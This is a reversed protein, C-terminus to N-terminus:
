AASDRLLHTAHGLREVAVDRVRPLRVAVGLVDLDALRAEVLPAALADRRADLAGRAEVAGARQAVLGLLAVDDHARAHAAARQALLAELHARLGGAHADLLDRHGLRDLADRFLADRLVVRVELDEVGVPDALVPPVLVVL